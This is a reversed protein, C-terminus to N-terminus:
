GHTPEEERQYLQETGRPVAILGRRELLNDIDLFSIKVELSKSGQITYARQATVLQSHCGALWGFLWGVAADATIVLLSVVETM